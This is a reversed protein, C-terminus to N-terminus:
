LILNMVSIQTHFTICSAICVGSSMCPCLRVCARVCARVCVAHVCVCVCVRVCVCVYVFVCVCARVCARVCVCACVRVRVCAYACVCQMSPVNLVGFCRDFSRERNQVEIDTTEDIEEDATM